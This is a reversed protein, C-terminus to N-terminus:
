GKTEASLNPIRRLKFYIALLAGLFGFYQFALSKLSLIIPFGVLKEHTKKKKKKIVLTLANLGHNPQNIAITIAM